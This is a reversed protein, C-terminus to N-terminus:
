LQVYLACNTGIIEFSGDTCTVCKQRVGEHYRGKVLPCIGVYLSLVLHTNECKGHIVRKKRQDIYM